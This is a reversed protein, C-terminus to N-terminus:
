HCSLSSAVASLKNPGGTQAGGSVRKYYRHAVVGGDESILGRRWSLPCQEANDMGATESCSPLVLLRHLRQKLGFVVKATGMVADLLGALVKKKPSADSAWSVAHM